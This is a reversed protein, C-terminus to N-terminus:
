GLLVRPALAAIQQSWAKLSRGGPCATFIPGEFQFTSTGGATQTRRGATVPVRWLDALRQLLRRGGADRAVKCGHMEVSGFESFVPTLRGLALQVKPFTEPTLSSLEINEDIYRVHKKIKKGVTEQWRIVGTGDSFAMVGAAGHGFFRLLVVSGAGRAAQQVRNAIDVIGNSMGGTVIPSGGSDILDAVETDMLDPDTVDVADIIKLGTDEVLRLWTLRGVIGDPKLDSFQSQFSVVAAKTRRGFIGDVSLMSGGGLKFSLLIQLVSVTPLQDGVSLLPYTV